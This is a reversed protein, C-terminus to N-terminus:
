SINQGKTMYAKPFYTAMRGQMLMKLSISSLLFILLVIWNVSLFILVLSTEQITSVYIQTTTWINKCLKEVWLSGLCLMCYWNHNLKWAILNCLVLRLNVVNPNATDSLMSAPEASMKWLLDKRWTSLQLSIRTLQLNEIQFGLINEEWATTGDSCVEVGFKLELTTM